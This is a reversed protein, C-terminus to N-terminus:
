LAMTSSISRTFIWTVPQQYLCACTRTAMNDVTQIGADKKPPDLFYKITETKSHFLMMKLYKYM